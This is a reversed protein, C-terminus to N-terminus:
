LKCLTGSHRDIRQFQTGGGGTPREGALSHTEEKSGFPPAVSAKPHSYLFGAVRYVRHKERDNETAGGNLQGELM